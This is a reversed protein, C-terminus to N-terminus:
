DSRMWSPVRTKGVVELGGKSSPYPPPSKMGNPFRMSHREFVEKSKRLFEFNDLSVIEREENVVM